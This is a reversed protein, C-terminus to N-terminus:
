ALAAEIIKGYDVVAAELDGITLGEDVGHAVLISGPGYLYRKVDVDGYIKFHPIDTGYHMVDVEFGDVDTDLDIPEYGENQKFDLKVRKEDIDHEACVKSVAERVIREADKPTGGALRIAIEASASAPVVNSAAGAKITGINITSNGYKDNAPLGGEEEPISGLADLRSFIPLAASVASEGLWPYGSHAAVGSVDINFSLMGKHGSALKGQTPEGFIVARYPAPDPNLPSDSFFAVGAGSTEESVLFLLALATDPNSELRNLAAITQAAISAKADVTGRGSILINERTENATLTYPIHPPVTDMHTTLVVEADPTSGAPYAFINFRPNQPDGDSEDDFPVEQKEVTFNKSELYEILFKAVAQESNSISEIECLSRHLSLLPSDKIIGDLDDRTSRAPLPISRATSTCVFVPAIALSTLLSRVSKM